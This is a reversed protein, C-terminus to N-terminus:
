KIYLSCLWEAVKRHKYQCALRFPEYYKMEMDVHLCKEVLWKAMDLYGHKCVESFIDNAYDNVPIHCDNHLWKAVQLQGKKCVEDFNYRNCEPYYKVIDFGINILWKAVELHGSKCAGWFAQLAYDHYSYKWITRVWKAFELYGNVCAYTFLKSPCTIGYLDAAPWTDSCLYNIHRQYTRYFNIFESFPRGGNWEHLKKLVYFALAQPSEDDEDFIGDHKAEYCALAWGGYKIYPYFGSSTVRFRTRTAVSQETLKSGRKRTNNKRVKQRKASM